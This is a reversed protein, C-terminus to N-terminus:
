CVKDDLVALIALQQVPDVLKIAKVFFACPKIGGFNNFAQFVHVRCANDVPSIPVRAVKCPCYKAFDSRNKM